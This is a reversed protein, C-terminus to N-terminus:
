RLPFLARLMDDTYGRVLTWGIGEAVEGGAPRYGADRLAQFLARNVVVQDWAEHPSRLHYTGWAHYVVLPHEAANPLVNGASPEFLVPWLSGVRGFVEPHTFATLFASDAADEAGAVARSAASARTSYREDILPVLEKVLMKLYSDNPRLDRNPAEPNPLVFVAIVPEIQRGVLHDLTNTLKGRDLAEHGALFYLTPYRHDSAPDYGVPLYVTAERTQGERATSDWAIGETTGRRSPEAEDLFNSEQWAPMAFWSVDGFAGPHIEPNRPDPIRDGFDVIFGYGLAANPELMASYHFLDTGPVRTMPDERRHGIMDGVIGVDEAEARYVFHVAGSDEIIPFSQQEGLYADIVAAKEDAAELSVLFQGFDTTTVWPMSSAAISDGPQDGSVIDVRALQKMSRLYLHGNAFAPASWSHEEFLDLTAVAQYGEPSAKAVHLTGPKNMIVLHDGVLTPFGDGPERSRWVVEGTAADVCAFIKSNMGYLYGDHYVPQVYSSKIGRSSWLETVEYSSGKTVQLMVSSSYKNMLLFRGEGAPIPVMTEAGMDGGDGGHEYSWLVAGTSPDLGWLARYGLALVQPRGAIVTAVPSQYRVSDTGATWLLEGTGPDFGGFAKGEGAGIEVVLVGDAILPSSSFGYYPIESEYEEVLNLQWLTEGSGADIAFLDGRPGLGYVRGEVLFPTAIPGDHSGDFGKLAEGIRQRWLETGTELDFAAVVDDPGAQFAAVLRSEDVSVVSYGSGLDRKWGVTLTADEGEFLQQDRVAGDHSPGRFGPWDARVPTASFCFAGAALALGSFILSLNTRNQL